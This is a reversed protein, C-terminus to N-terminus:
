EETMHTNCTNVLIECVTQEVITGERNMGLGLNQVRDSTSNVYIVTLSEKRLIHCASGKYHCDQGNGIEENALNPARILADKVYMSFTEHLYYKLSPPNTSQMLANGDCDRQLDVLECILGVYKSV